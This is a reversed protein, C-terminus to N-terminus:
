PFPAEVVWSVWELHSRLGALLDKAFPFSALGGLAFLSALLIAHETLAQGSQGDESPPPAQPPPPDRLPLRRNM